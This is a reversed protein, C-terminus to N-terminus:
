RTIPWASGRRHGSGPLREVSINPVVNKGAQSEGVRQNALVGTSLRPGSAIVLCSALAKNPPETRQVDSRVLRPVGEQLRQEHGCPHQRSLSHDHHSHGLRFNENAVEGSRARLTGFGRKGSKRPNLIFRRHVHRPTM